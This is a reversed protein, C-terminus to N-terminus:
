GKKTWNVNRIDFYFRFLDVKFIITMLLIFVYRKQCKKREIEQWELAFDKRIKSHFLFISVILFKPNKNKTKNDFNQISSWIVAIKPHNSNWLLIEHIKFISDIPVYSMM